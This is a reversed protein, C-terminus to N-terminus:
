LKKNNCLFKLVVEQYKNRIYERSDLDFDLPGNKWVASHMKASDSKSNIEKINNFQNYPIWEFVIEYFDDIKFQM